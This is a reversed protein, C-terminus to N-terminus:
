FSGLVSRATSAFRDPEYEQDSAVTEFLRNLVTGLGDADGLALSLSEISLFAQEASAFDALTGNAAMEVIAKRVAQVQARSFAQTTWSREKEDIWTLLADAAERVAAHSVQGSRVLARVNGTFQGAESGALVRAVAELIQLNHDQLRVTGPEIGQNRLQVPWRQEDMPHHCSHCDYFAIEPFTGDPDFLDTKILSLYRDASVLQGTLWLNFSEIKGKRETYDEDVDYHAPQNVTFAELEFSLRPHGAGMIEHTAFQSDTGLHCSLCIEARAVPKETAYMGRALNDAHTANPEAHSTIWQESGGHCAECGVGDSLQFKPGRQAPEVNDTHCDLCIKATVASALGLKQAIRRSEDSSLTQYARSHRDDASWIRYENLWVNETEQPAGKGHCVSTACSAVGLHQHPEERIQASGTMSGLAM